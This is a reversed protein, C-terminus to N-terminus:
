GLRKTFNWLIAQKYPPSIKGKPMNRCLLFLVLFTNGM